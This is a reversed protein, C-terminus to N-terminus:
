NKYERRLINSKSPKFSCKTPLSARCKWIKSANSCTLRSPQQHSCSRLYWVGLLLRKEIDTVREEKEQTQRPNRNLGLDKVLGKAIGLLSDFGGRHQECWWRWRGLVMVAAMLIELTSEGRLMVMSSVHNVFQYVQSLLTSESVNTTATFTTAAALRIASMLVPREVALAQSDVNNPVLIFPFSPQIKTLFTQVADEDATPSSPSCVSTGPAPPPFLTISLLPSSTASRLPAQQLSIDAVLNGISTSTFDTTSTTSPPSLSGDTDVYLSSSAFRTTRSQRQKRPGQIRKTCTKLLGECRDCKSGRTESTRSCKAKAAACQACATGWKTTQNSKKKNM